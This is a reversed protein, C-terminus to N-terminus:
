RRVLRTIKVAFTRSALAPFGTPQTDRGDNYVIFFDSGPIYEWHLRINSALTHASPNYQVLATLAMRPNFMMTTNAGIVQATFQSAPLDVWNVTIRPEIGLRTGLDLRANVGAVTRHGDYFSGQSVNM